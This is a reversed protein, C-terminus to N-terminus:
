EDEDAEDEDMLFFSVDRFLVPHPANESQAEAIPVALRYDQMANPGSFGGKPGELRFRTCDITRALVWWPVNSNAGISVLNEDKNKARGKLESIRNYLTPYDFDLYRPPVDSMEEDPTFEGMPIIEEKRQSQAEASDDAQDFYSLRFGEQPRNSVLIRLALPKNGEASKSKGLRPVDVEQVTVKHFKFAFILMPILIILISMVPMLNVDDLAGVGSGRRKRAM